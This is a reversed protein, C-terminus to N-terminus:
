RCDMSESLKIIPVDIAISHGLPAASLFELTEHGSSQSGFSRTYVGVTYIDVGTEECGPCFGRFDLLELVENFPDTDPDSAMLWRGVGLADFYYRIHVQVSDTLIMTTGGVLNDPSFWHGSLSAVDGNVEPCTRAADPAMIESGHFGDRRWSFIMEDDSIMTLSVEGIQDYNQREGTANSIRDLVASWASSTTDIDAIAQYFVPLGDNDYSYWTLFGPGGRQWEIGQYILRDRPSWLGRQSRVPDAEDVEVSVEVLAESSTGNDLVVFWRGPAADSSLSFGGLSGSGTDMLQGAAAPTGPAYDAIESFDMRRLDASVGTSGQVFVNVSTATPSVDFFLLDHRGGPAVFVPYTEGIFVATPEPSAEATRRVSVPIVRVDSLEDDSSALGIAGLWREDRPMRPQDWALALRMDGPEHTPPGSAALTYDNGESLVAYELEVIDHADAHSSQWNQVLIWWTGPQPNEILCEELEDPTIAACVEEDADAQGNGASDFGVFLDIDDATSYLTEVWLMLANEPVDVLFTRTGADGDYPDNPSSDQVLSFSEQVPRTLSSTRYIAEPMATPVELDIEIRGRNADTNIQLYSSMAGMAVPLRQTSMSDSEPMMVISGDLATDMQVVGGTVAISLEQSEGEALSFSSPSVEIDLNGETTVSWSGASIARVTRTFQCNQTCSGAFIGPLNLQGPDGGQAPNANVFDARSVPLYLGVNVARDLRARGAGRDIMTALQDQDLVGSADATTELASQLMAVTWDPRASKLLAMGGAIHPSAMSTGTMMMTQSGSDGASVISSGPAVVNPKMVDPSNLGPGRSSTSAMQDAWDARIIRTVDREITATPAASNAIADLAAIGDANSLQFSPIATTELGAMGIPPGALHNIILVGVAGASHANNVKTEFTCDGRMMVAIAGSFAGSPFSDCGLMNGPDVDEAVRVAATLDGDMSPGSGELAVLNSLSAVTARNALVRDHTTNGVAITWPTNAPSSISGLGDLGENGASSVPVIGATRLNLFLEASSTTQPRNITMWPDSASGGLSYNIIDVGDEIAQELAERIASGQCEGEDEDFDDKCVKYSIINARPAVGSMSYVNSGGGFNLSAQRPNGAATGAVHSGHGGPDKGNTGEDTYDYVGILKNNCKVESMSCLGRQSGLPNSYEYGDTHAPDDSFMPHDWNIGSDIVGIVVNEGRHEGVGDVLGQWILDAGILQPGRDTELYHYEDQEVALVGPVEALWRAEEASMDVSFGNQLHRYVHVPQLERGLTDSAWELVARRENDLWKVYDRVEPRSVDLRRTGTLEPATAALGPGKRNQGDSHLWVQASGEYLVTPPAELYVIWRDPVVKPQKAAVTTTLAIMLLTVVAAMLTNRSTRLSM